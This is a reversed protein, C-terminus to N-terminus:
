AARAKLFDDVNQQHVKFTLAWVWPNADWSGAGNISEWLRKYGTKWCITVPPFISNGVLIYSKLEEVGEAEADEVSIDQLREVRVETIELTLRSLWRPMHISSVVDKKWPWAYNPYWTTDACYGIGGYEKARCISERVWLLDGPKGYPCVHMPHSPVPKVIRRAQTKRGELLARVMSASMLIPRAKM